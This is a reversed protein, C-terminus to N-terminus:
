FVSRKYNEESMRARIEHLAYNGTAYLEFAKRVLPAKAPDVVISRANRDNLYGVPPKSPWVGNRSYTLFLTAIVATVVASDMTMPVSANVPTPM